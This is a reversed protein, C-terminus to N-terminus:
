AHWFYIDSGALYSQIRSNQLKDRVEKHSFNSCKWGGRLSWMKVIAGGMEQRSFEPSVSLEGLDRWGKHPVFADAAEQVSGPPSWSLVKTSSFYTTLGCSLSHFMLVELYSSHRVPPMQLALCFHVWYLLSLSSLRVLSFSAGGCHGAIFEAKAILLAGSSWWLFSM